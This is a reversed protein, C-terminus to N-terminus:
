RTTIFILCPSVTYLATEEQAQMVEKWIHTIRHTIWIRPKLIQVLRIRSTKVRSARTRPHPTKYIVYEGDMIKDKSDRMRNCVIYGARELAKLVSGIRDTGDKCIKSPSRTIYNWDEPLFLIMSLLGKSKLSLGANRLHHNSMVTYDRTKEIRFVAM